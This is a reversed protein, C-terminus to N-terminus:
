SFQDERGYVIGQQWSRGRLLRCKCCYVQELIHLLLCCYAAVLMLLSCNELHFQKTGKREVNFIMTLQALIFLLSRLASCNRNCLLSTGFERLGVLPGFILDIMAFLHVSSNAMITQACSFLLHVLHGESDVM